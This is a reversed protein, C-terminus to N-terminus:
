ENLHKVLKERLDIAMDLLTKSNNIFNNFYVDAWINLLEDSNDINLLDDDVDLKDLINVLTKCCEQLTQNCYNMFEGANDNKSLYSSLLYELRSKTTKEHTKDLQM